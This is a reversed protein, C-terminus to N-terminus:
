HDMQMDGEMDMVSVKLVIDEHTQFHLTVVIEDGPKLDQKLNVMMVHYGGPKFVVEEDAALPISEQQSMKMVGNADMASLHIEVADAVDSSVGVIADDANSHNHVIMYVAGNSEQLASRAWMSHVEIDGDFGDCASLVLMGALILVILKNM